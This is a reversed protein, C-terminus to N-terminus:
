LVDKPTVRGRLLARRCNCCLLILNEVSDKGGKKKAVIHLLELCVLFEGYGCMMCRHRASIAGTLAACRPLKM